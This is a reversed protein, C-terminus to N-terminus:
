AHYDSSPADSRLFLGWFHEMHVLGKEEKLTPDLFSVISGIKPYGCTKCKMTSNNASNDNEDCADPTADSSM